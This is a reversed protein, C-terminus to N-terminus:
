SGIRMYRQRGTHDGEGMREGDERKGGREGGENLDAQLFMDIDVTQM